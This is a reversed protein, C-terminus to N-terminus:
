GFAQNGSEDQEANKENNRASRRAIQEEGFKEAVIQHLHNRRLLGGQRFRNGIINFM